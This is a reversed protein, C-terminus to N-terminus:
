FGVGIHKRHWSLRTRDPWLSTAQPGIIPRGALTMLFGAANPAASMQPSTLVKYDDDVSMLGEDFAWHCLRCLAMGNRVDDDQFQSWPQIHAAEVVTHGEPTVIRVGCLACRHDYCHVVARRFGQNRVPISYITEPKAVKVPVRSELELSYQYAQQQIGIEALLLRRGEESFCSELLTEVLRTRAQPRNMLLFLEEDLKAGLALRRLQPVTTVANIAAPTIQQGPLPILEWFPESHLHSFPFAISSTKDASMLSRWYSTFLENLETLEGTISIFRSVIQGRGVMDMVALLLFPKHPARNKTTVPFSRGPARVLRALQQCYRDLSM